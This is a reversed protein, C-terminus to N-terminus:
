EEKPSVRSGGRGRWVSGWVPEEGGGLLEQRRGKENPCCSRDGGEGSGRTRKGAAARRGFFVKGGGKENFQVFVTNLSERTGRGSHAVEKQMEPGCVKGRKGVNFSALQYGGKM